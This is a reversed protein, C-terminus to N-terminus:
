YGEEQWRKVEDRIEQIEEATLFQQQYQEILESSKLIDALRYLWAQLKKDRYSYGGFSFMMWAHGNRAAYEEPSMTEFPFLEHATREYEVGALEFEPEQMM